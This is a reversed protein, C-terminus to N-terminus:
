SEALSQEGVAGGHLCSLTVSTFAHAIIGGKILKGFEGAVRPTLVWDFEKVGRIRADNSDVRVREDASVLAAWPVVLNPRPFLKVNGTGHVRVTLLM